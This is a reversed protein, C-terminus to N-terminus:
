IKSEDRENAAAANVRTLAAEVLEKGRKSVLGMSVLDSHSYLGLAPYNARVDNLIKEKKIHLSLEGYLVKTKITTNNGEGFIGRRIILSQNVHHQALDHKGMYKYVMGANYNLSALKERVEDLWPVGTRMPNGSYFISVIYIAKDFEEIAGNLNRAM